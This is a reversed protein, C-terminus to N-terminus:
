RRERCLRSRHRHHTLGTSASPRRSRYRRSGSMTSRYYPRSNPSYSSDTIQPSPKASGQRVPGRGGAGRLRLWESGAEEPHLMAALVVGYVQDPPKPDARRFRDQLVTIMANLDPVRLGEQRYTSAWEQIKDFLAAPPKRFLDPPMRIDEMPVQAISSAVFKFMAEVFPNGADDALINLNHLSELYFQFALAFEGIEQMEEFDNHTLRKGAPRQEKALMAAGLELAMSQRVENIFYWGGHSKTRTRGEDTFNDPDGTQSVLKQYLADQALREVRRYSTTKAKLFADLLGIM